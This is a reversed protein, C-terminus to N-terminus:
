FPTKNFEIELGKKAATVNKGTLEYVEKVFQKENSNSDSLHILVINNVASLDNAALMDKCNELSFHSRLIRNRLFEKGSDAGFKRDIIEKSFNAEIIINNLGPFTYKCYNTDTLFLVKGCDPHDILFGLPEAADHQVDFAMVKFSGIRVNEKSAITMSRHFNDPNLFQSTKAGTYTTIGLGMVEDFSKAHDQHEHSLLCGVVKSFDFNLAKKIDMINVGCEILLAENENELIYANGISGTSIVKLKM